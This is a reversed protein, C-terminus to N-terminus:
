DFSDQYKLLLADGAIWIHLTEAVIEVNNVNTNTFFIM